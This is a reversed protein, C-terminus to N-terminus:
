LMCGYVLTTANRYYLSRDRFTAGSAINTQPASTAVFTGIVCGSPRITCIAYLMPLPALHRKVDLLHIRDPAASWWKYYIGGDEVPVPSGRNVTPPVTKSDTILSQASATNQHGVRRAECIKRRPDTVSRQHDTNQYWGAKSRFGSTSITLSSVM